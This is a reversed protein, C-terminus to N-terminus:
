VSETCVKSPFTQVIDYVHNETREDNFPDKDMVEVVPPTNLYPGRPVSDPWRSALGNVEAERWPAARYWGRNKGWNRYEYWYGDQMQLVIMKMQLISTELMALM